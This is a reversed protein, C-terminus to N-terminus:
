GAVSLPGSLPRNLSNGHTDGRQGRDEGQKAGQEAAAGIAGPGTGLDGGLGRRAIPELVQQMVVPLLHGHALIGEAIRRLIVGDSAIADGDVGLEGRHVLARQAAEIASDVDLQGLHMRGALIHVPSCQDGRLDCGGADLLLPRVGAGADDGEEVGLFVRGGLALCVLGAPRRRLEGAVYELPPGRGRELEAVDLAAVLHGADCLDELIGLRIDERLGAEVRDVQLVLLDLAPVLLSVM